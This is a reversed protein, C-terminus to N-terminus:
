SPKAQLPQLVHGDIGLGALEENAGPQLTEPAFERQRLRAHGLIEPDARAVEVKELAALARDGRLDEQAQSFGVVDVQARETGLAVLLGDDGQGLDQGVREEAIEAHRAVLERVHGARGGGDDLRDPPEVVGVALRAPALFQHLCAHRLAVVRRRRVRDIPHAVPHLIAAVMKGIEVGAGLRHGALHAREPRIEQRSEALAQALPVLDLEPDQRDVDHRVRQAPEVAVPALEMDAFHDVAGPPHEGGRVLQRKEFHRRLDIRHHRAGVRRVRHRAPEQADVEGVVSGGGHHHGVPAEELRGLAKGIVDADERRANPALKSCTQWRSVM